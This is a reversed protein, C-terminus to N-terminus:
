CWAPSLCVFWGTEASEVDILSYVWLCSTRYGSKQAIASNLKAKCKGLFAKIKNIRLLLRGPRTNGYITAWLLAREHTALTRKYRSAGALFDYERLGRVRYHEIALCHALLGPKLKNDQQYAFGSQFFYAKGLSIFNYLVGICRDGAKVCLLDVTGDVWIRCILKRHFDLALQNSFSGALGKSRWRANHMRTMEDFYEMAADLSDAPTISIPGDITEYLRRCRRLQSRTNSSLRSDFRVDPLDLLNIYPAPKHELNAEASPVAAVVRRIIGESSCGTLVFRDWKMEALLAILDNAIVDKFGELCLVDNCEALPSRELTAGSANLFLTRFFLAGIRIPKILILCGGIVEGSYTWWIWKGDFRAGYTQLWTAVWDTSLFVVENCAAKHLPDWWDPFDGQNDLARIHRQVCLIEPPLVPFKNM